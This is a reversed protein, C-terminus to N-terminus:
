QAPATIEVPVTVQQTTGDPATLTYIREGDVVSSKVGSFQEPCNPTLRKHKKLNNLFSGVPSVCEPISAWGAPSALCLLVTCGSVDAHAANSGLLGCGLILAKRM